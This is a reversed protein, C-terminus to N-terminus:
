GAGRTIVLLREFWGGQFDLQRPPTIAKCLVRDVGPNRGGSITNSWAVNAEVEGPTMNFALSCQELSVELRDLHPSTVFPCDTGPDCTQYYGFEACTQYFWIRGVSELSPNLMSALAKAEAAPGLEICTHNQNLPSSTHDYMAVLRELPASTAGLPAMFNQCIGGYDCALNTQGPEAACVPDNVQHNFGVSLTSVFDRQAPERSLPDTGAGECIPFLQSLSARGSATGLMSGVEAFAQKISDLCVQSGGIAENSYAYAVVQEPSYM